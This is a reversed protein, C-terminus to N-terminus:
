SEDDVDFGQGFFEWPPLIVPWSPAERGLEQEALYVRHVADVTRLKSNLV